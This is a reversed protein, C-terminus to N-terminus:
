QNSQSGRSPNSRVRDMRRRLGPLIRMLRRHPRFQRRMAEGGFFDDFTIGDAIRDRLMVTPHRIEGIPETGLSGAWHEGKTHTANKDFGINKVLNVAPVIGLGHYLLCSYGWIYAWSDTAGDAVSQVCRMFYDEELQSNSVDAMGRNRKFSDWHELNHDYRQWARRWTAWGWCHTHRSFYYSDPAQYKGRLFNNGGIHMVRADDAYHSLLCECYRFFDPNALCDDELIIAQEEREFVFDLGSSIRRRVGMNEEAAEVHLSTPWPLDDFLQLVERRLERDSENRPGDAIVYLKRPRYAAISEIVRRTTEPRRFVVLVVPTSVEQIM